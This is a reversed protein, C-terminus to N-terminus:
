SQAGTFLWPWQDHAYVAAAAVAALYANGAAHLFMAVLLSRRLWFGVTMILGGLVELEGFGGHGYPVAHLFGFVAGSLLAAAGPTMRELLRPVLVGRYIVEEVLPAAVVAIVAIGVLLQWNGLVGEPGLLQRDAPTPGPLQGNALLVIGAAIALLITVLSGGLAAVEVSWWLDARWRKTDLWLLAWVPQRPGAARSVILLAVGLRLAYGACDVLVRTGLSMGGVASSMGFSLAM